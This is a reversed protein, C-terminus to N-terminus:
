HPVAMECCSMDRRNTMRALAYIKKGEPRGGRFNRGSKCFEDSILFISLIHPNNRMVLVRTV